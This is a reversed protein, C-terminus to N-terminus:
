RNFVADYVAELQAMEDDAAFGKAGGTSKKRNEGNKELASLRAELAAVTQELGQERQQSGEMGCTVLGIVAASKLQELDLEVSKGAVELEYTEAPVAATKEKEQM